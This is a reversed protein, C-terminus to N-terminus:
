VRSRYQVPSMGEAKRFASSFASESSFGIRYGIEKIQLGTNALLYRAADMRANMVYQHPTFGTERKFVRIFHYPSLATRRCLAELNLNEELHGSIYSVVEQIVAAYGQEEGEFLPATLFETMMDTLYRSLLAEQIPKGSSFMKLIMRLFEAAPLPNPLSFINGCRSIVLEAYGRATIGDFHVWSATCGEGTGYMHPSYCDLILFQGERAIGSFAGSRVELSGADVHLILFSDFRNRTLLYGPEYHFLGACVPYLFLDRATKGPSYIYYKSDKRIKPDLQRM